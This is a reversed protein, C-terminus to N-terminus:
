YGRGWTRSWHPTVSVITQLEGWRAVYGDVEDAPMYRATIKTAEEVARSADTTVSATGRILVAAFPPEHEQVTVSVRPDRLANRVWRRDAGTWVFFRAGDFRFWVPVAHPAGDADITSVVATLSREILLTRTEDDM